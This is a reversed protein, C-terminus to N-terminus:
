ERSELAQPKEDKEAQQEAREIALVVAQMQDPELNELIQSLTFSPGHQVDVKGAHQVNTDMRGHMEVRHNDRYKEPLHARLLLSMLMDSGEMARRRAEEELRDVAQRGAEHFAEAYRPDELWVYTQPRSVNSIRAAQSINGCQSYAVLFRQQNIKLGELYQRNEDQESPQEVQRKPVMRRLTKSNTPDMTLPGVRTVGLSKWHAGADTSQYAGAFTVAYLTQPQRPDLLLAFVVLAKGQLGTNRISWTIGGDTSMRVGAGESGTYITDPNTPDIVIAQTPSGYPGINSWTSL